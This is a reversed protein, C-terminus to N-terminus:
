WTKAPEDPTPENVGNRAMPTTPPRREDDKVSDLLERAEQPSMDGPLRQNGASQALQGNNTAGSASGPKQPQGSGSQPQGNAQQPQESGPQPQGNPQSKSQQQPQGNAQQPQESGPQPQGNPQSKPQQQPQGNAQQPQESGPQPQGNPQSKSQQPSQGNAQQPQGNDQQPKGNKPQKDGSQNQQSQSKQSQAKKLAELKRNVFDRNFKDDADDARLQLAADYAKVAQTWTQITQEADVKETKQGVRYLANGLNYYADEQEALRKADGSQAANVSAEFAKAAQPFEAAKYAAAGANFQLIPHKPNREAAAAYDREATSYDGHEYAAEASSPSARASHPASLWCLGLLVAATPVAFRTFSERAAAVRRRRRTDIMTSILLLMLSATLPWQFRETYIKQARSELDHKALPAIAQQYIMDLGQNNAGLPAYSGGTAAALAKLASEDLHSKVLRGENDKLFGGGQDAPLPILDGNASGVGVTFIKLGDEKAATKAAALSDGELDEGDTVLIMIKDSDPRRQLAAVTEHIASTINTGPRPIINTDLASLSEHFAGYDLTIPTQLFASGAFAVLGVADGNLRGVFDDIALKARALRNPKVDPTSMSRSTDVAFIIDNGRRTVQELRYGAQPEALAAFLLAISAAFLLRKATRRGGSISGTLQAQLHPAVFDALASRQRADYRRWVWVLAACAAAGALLWWPHAFTVPIEFNV